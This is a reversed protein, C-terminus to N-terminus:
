SFIQQLCSTIVCLNIKKKMKLNYKQKRKGPSNKTCEITMRLPFVNKKKQKYTIKLSSPISMLLHSINASLLHPCKELLRISQLSCSQSTGAQEPADSMVHLMNIPSLQASLLLPCFRRTPLANQAIAARQFTTHSGRAAVTITQLGLRYHAPKQRRGTHSNRNRM